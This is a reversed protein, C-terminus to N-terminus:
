LDLRDKEDENSNMMRENLQATGFNYSVSLNVRRSDDYQYYDWHQNDFVAHTHFKMTNFINDMGLSCSLREEYFSKTM